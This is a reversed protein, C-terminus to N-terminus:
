LPPMQWIENINMYTYADETPAIHKKHEEM